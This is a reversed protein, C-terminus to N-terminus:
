IFNKCISRLSESNWRKTDNIMYMYKIDKLVSVGKYAGVISCAMASVTDTDGGGSLCMKICDMINYPHSLFCALSYISSQLTGVGIRESWCPEGYHKGINLCFEIISGKKIEIPIQKILSGIDDDLYKLLSNCFIEKNSQINYKCFKSICVALRCAQAILISSQICLRNNHTLIAQMKAIESVKEPDNYFMVGIQGVRMCAGNGLGKGDSASNWKIGKSFNEMSRKTTSGYGVIKDNHVMPLDTKVLGSNAFLALTRKAYDEGNYTNNNNIISIILERAQQTDDTYQGFEFCVSNESKNVCRPKKDDRFQVGYNWLLDKEVVNEIFEKCQPISYGEVLFGIADGYSMSILSSFLIGQLEEREYKEFKLSISYKEFYGRLFEIFEIYNTDDTYESYKLMIELCKQVELGNLSYNKLLKKFVYVINSLFDNLYERKMAYELVCFILNVKIDEIENYYIKSLIEYIKDFQNQKMISVAEDCTITAKMVESCYYENEHKTTTM